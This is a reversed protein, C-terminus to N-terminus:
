LLYGVVAFFLFVPIFIEFFLLALKGRDVPLRGCTKGTQGNLAFYYMKDDKKDQYTFTWVPLLAYRWKADSIDATFERM